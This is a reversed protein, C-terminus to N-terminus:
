ALIGAFAVQGSAILRKFGFVLDEHALRAMQVQAQRSQFSQSTSLAGQMTPPLSDAFRARWAPPQLSAYAALAKIDVQLLLDQMLNAPLKLLMQPHLIDQYWAPLEGGSRQMVAEILSRRDSEAIYGLLVSLARAAEFARGRDDFGNPLARPLEPLPQGARAADLSAFVYAREENSMRNSVLLASAVQLRIPMALASAVEHQVDDPVIAFILAGPRPPLVSILHAIGGSGFEDRLSRYTQADAHSLLSAAIAHQNLKRFFEADSPLQSPDVDRMYEAFKVKSAAYEGQSPFVKSLGDGFVSMAKALMPFEATSLWQRVLEGFADSSAETHTVRATWLRRQEDVFGEDDATAPMGATQSGEGVAPPGRGAEPSEAALQALLAKEQLSERGLRRLAWIIVLGALTGLFLAIMWSFHPLLSLWLERKALEPEWKTPAAPSAPPTPPQPKAVPEPKPQPSESLSATIPELIQRGVTVKLWGKSLRQELRRVLAQVDRASVSKEHAFECRAETLYEQVPVSGPGEPQGLGPLSTSRPLDVVAHDRYVCGKSACREPACDRVLASDFQSELSRVEALVPPPIHRQPVPVAQALAFSPLTLTAAFAVCSWSISTAINKM